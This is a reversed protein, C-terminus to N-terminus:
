YRVVRSLAKAQEVWDAVQSRFPLRRVRAVRENAALMAEYLNDPVRRALEM